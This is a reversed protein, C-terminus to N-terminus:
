LITCKHSKALAKEKKCREVEEYAENAKSHAVNANALQTKVEALQTAMGHQTALDWQLQELRRVEAWAKHRKESLQNLSPGGRATLVLTEDNYVLDRAINVMSLSKGSNDRANIAQSENYERGHLSIDIPLAQAFTATAFVAAVFTRTCIM